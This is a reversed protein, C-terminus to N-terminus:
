FRYGVHLGAGGYVEVGNRPCIFNRGVFCNAEFVWNSPAIWKYGLGLGLGFTSRSGSNYGSREEYVGDDNHNAYYTYAMNTELFFGRASNYRQNRSLGRFFNWRFYPMTQFQGLAENLGSDHDISFAMRGGASIDNNIAYEYAVEPRLSLITSSLNLKVEHRPLVLDDTRGFGRQADASTHCLSALALFLLFLRVSRRM